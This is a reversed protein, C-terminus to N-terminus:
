CVIKKKKFHVVGKLPLYHVFNGKLTVAGSETTYSFTCIKKSSHMSM